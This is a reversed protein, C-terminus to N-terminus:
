KAPAAPSQAAPLNRRPGARRPVWRSRVKAEQEDVVVVLLKDACLMSWLPHRRRTSVGLPITAALTAMWAASRARTSAVSGDV